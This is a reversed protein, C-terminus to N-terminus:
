KRRQEDQFEPKYFMLKAIMVLRYM